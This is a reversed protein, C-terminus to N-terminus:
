DGSAGADGHDHDHAVGDVECEGEGEMHGQTKLEARVFDYATKLPIPSGGLQYTDPDIAGLSGIPIAELEARTVVGDLDLDSDALWQALRIVSGEDGVPFGNFFIHDGHLTISTSKVSGDSIAVGPLGDLECPGFVTEASVGFEFRIEEALYCDNGYSKPGIPQRDGVSVLNKPPCSRGGSQALTGEILYTLDGDVITEFDAKTVTDHRAPAHDGGSIEFGFNWRGSALGSFKWLELGSEPVRKLDIAFASPQEATQHEDSLFALFVPGVVVVYKEFSVDWGDRIDESDDGARIGERVTIEPKLRVSLEGSSPGCALMFLCAGSSLARRARGRWKSKLLQTM